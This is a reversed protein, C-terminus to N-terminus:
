RCVVTTLVANAEKDALLGAVMHPMLQMAARHEKAQTFSKYGKDAVGARAPQSVIYEKRSTAPNVFNEARPAGRMRCM